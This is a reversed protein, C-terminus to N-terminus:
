DNLFGKWLKFKNEKPNNNLVHEVSETLILQKVIEMVNKIKFALNLEIVTLTGGHLFEGLSDVSLSNEKDKHHQFTVNNAEPVKDLLETTDKKQEM